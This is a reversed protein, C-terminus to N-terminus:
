ARGSSTRAPDKEKAAEHGTLGGFVGGVIAGLHAGGCGFFAAGLTRGVMAGLTAGGATYAANKVKKDDM